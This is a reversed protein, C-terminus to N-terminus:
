LNLLFHYWILNSITVLEEDLEFTSDDSDDSSHGEILQQKNRCTSKSKAYEANSDNHCAESYYNGMSKCPCVNRGREKFHIHFSFKSIPNKANESFKTKESGLM